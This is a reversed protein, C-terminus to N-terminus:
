IGWEIVNESIGIEEFFGHMNFSDRDTVGVVQKGDVSISWPDCIFDPDNIHLINYLQKETINKLDIIFSSSSSNSVFGTRKRM